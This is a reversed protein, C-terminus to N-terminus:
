LMWTVEDPPTYSCWAGTRVGVRLHAGLAPHVQEVRKIAARIRWTVASRAREVNGGTSRSRGGLGVAAALEDVVLDLEVRAQEARGLDYADEAETLEEQLDLIRAEYARRAQTDLVPGTDGQEVGSGMLEGSHVEKGPSALLVVLDRLGKADSLRVTQGAFTISWVTGELVFRNGAVPEVSATTAAPTADAPQETARDLVRRALGIGDRLGLPEAAATPAAPLLGDLYARELVDSLPSPSAGTSALLAM